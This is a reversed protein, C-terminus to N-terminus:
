LPDNGINKAIIEEIETKTLTMQEYPINDLNFIDMLRPVKGSSLMRELIVLYTGIQTIIIVFKTGFDSSNDLTKPRLKCQMIRNAIFEHNLCLEALVEHAFKNRIEGILKLDHYIFKPILGSFYAINVKAYFTQLIHDNKFLSEVRQDKIFFSRFLNELLNDLYCVAIIVLARDSRASVSKNSM